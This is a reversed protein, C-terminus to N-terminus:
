LIKSVIQILDEELEMGKLRGSLVGLRGSIGDSMLRWNTEELAKSIIKKLQNRSDYDNRNSDNDQATFAVEVVQEMKPQGLTFRIYKEPIIAKIILKEMEIISIKKLKIAKQYVPDAQKKKWDDITKMLQNLNTVSSIYKEGEDKTMCYTARYKKLLQRDKIQQKQWERDDKGMNWTEKEKNHCVQCTNLTISIKGKNKYKTTMTNGCKKCITPKPIYQQGDDFYAARKGCNPCKYWLMVRPSESISDHIHKDTFELTSYCEKCNLTASPKASNVLNDLNEDRRLWENITRSRDQYRSGKLHYLSVQAVLNTAKYKLQNQPSLKKNSHNPPPFYNLHSLCDKITMLDYLDEYYPLPKLNKGM